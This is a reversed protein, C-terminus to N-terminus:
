NVERSTTGFLRALLKHIDTSILVVMVSILAAPALQAFSLHSLELLRHAPTFLVVYQLGVALVLGLLLKYNPRTFIRLFSQFEYNASIANAWQSVVLVTFAITQAYEVGHHLNRKFFVLALIAMIASVMILRSIMRFGLLPSNPKQPPLRMQQPEPDGLGLPIVLMSDTVLNIWLIQAATVPLPLDLLLASIMTLAEGLNTALLYFLVKRINSIISRGLRLGKIITSFNDDLLVLDSAEKAADTGSGMALGVDAEVIAPVDNVGDGTMAVIEHGKLAQMFRYKHVPLVRGFVRKTLLAHRIRGRSKDLVTSSSVQSKASILGASMGIHGATEIHDGTLMVVGVGAMRADKIANQVEPRLPDNLGVIGDIELKHLLTDSLNEPIKHLKLHGIALTRYGQKAYEASENELTIDGKELLAEPAGKVYLTYGTTEKWLAGSVRLEQDFPFDKIKKGLLRSSGAKSFNNHIITDIVDAHKDGFSTVSKRAAAAFETDNNLVHSTAAVSLRNKTLTGTKDTAILTLAGLTEISAFKKVLVKARAMRKAGIFLMVTMAIPLGEPVASVIISLSFRLAEETEIGRYIALGFVLIALACIAYILKRALRDIKHEIPSKDIHADTVLANIAGLATKSGIASVVMQGVGSQVLTGKFLMNKQDYLELSGHLPELTKHVPLSEGTLISEDVRLQELAVLRGDAPVKMGEEILVLDGPVLETSDIRAVTNERRVHVKLVDQSRLAMLAREVSFQQVYYIGVDFIIVLGIIIADLSEGTFFSILAAIILVCVFVNAFPELVRSWFPRKIIPLENKGFQVTRKKVESSSLGSLGSNLEHLASAADKEYLKRNETKDRM